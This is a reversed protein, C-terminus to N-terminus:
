VVARALALECGKVAMDLWIRRQERPQHQAHIKVGSQTSLAQLLAKDVPLSTVLLPPPTGQLYHQGIFAQLVQREARGTRDLLPAEVEPNDQPEDARTDVEALASAEEAELTTADTWM